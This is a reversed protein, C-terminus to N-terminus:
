AASGLKTLAAMMPSRSVSQSVVTWIREQEADPLADVLDIVDEAALQCGPVSLKIGLTLMDVLASIPADQLAALGGGPGASGRQETFAKLFKLRFRILRPAGNITLLLEGREPIAQAPTASITTETEM